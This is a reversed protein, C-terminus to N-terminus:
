ENWYCLMVIVWVFGDMCVDMCVYVLLSAVM